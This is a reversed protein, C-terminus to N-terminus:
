RSRGRRRALLNKALALFKPATECTDKELITTKGSDRLHIYDGYNLALSDLKGFDKQLQSLVAEIREPPGTKTRM